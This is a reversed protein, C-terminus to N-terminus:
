VPTPKFFFTTSTTEHLFVINAAWSLICHEPLWVIDIVDLAGIAPCWYLKPLVIALSRACTTMAKQIGFAIQTTQFIALVCLL